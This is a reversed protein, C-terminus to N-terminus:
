MVICEAAQAFLTQFFMQTSKKLIFQRLFRLYTAVKFVGFKCVSFTQLYALQFESYCYLVQVLEKHFHSTDYKHYDLSQQPIFAILLVEWTLSPTYTVVQQPPQTQPTQLRQHGEKHKIKRRQSKLHLIARRQPHYLSASRYCTGLLFSFFIVGTISQLGLRWGVWSSLWLSQQKFSICLAHVFM